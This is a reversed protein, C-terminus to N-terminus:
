AFRRMDPSRPRATLDAVARRSSTVSVAASFKATPIITIGAAIVGSFPPVITSWKARGIIEWIVFWVLMSFLIPIRKGFLTM